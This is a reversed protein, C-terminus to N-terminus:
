HGVWLCVEGHPRHQRRVHRQERFDEAGADLLQGSVIVAFRLLFGPRRGGVILFSEAHPKRTLQREDGRVRARGDAKRREGVVGADVHEIHM